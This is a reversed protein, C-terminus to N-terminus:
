LSVPGLPSTLASSQPLANSTRPLGGEKETGRGDGDQRGLWNQSGRRLSDGQQTM